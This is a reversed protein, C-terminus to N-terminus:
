LTEFLLTRYFLFSNADDSNSYPLVDIRWMGPALSTWAWQMSHVEVIDPTWDFFVADNHGGPTAYFIEGTHCTTPVGFLEHICLARVAISIDDNDADQAGPGGAPEEAFGATESSFTAMAGGHCRKVFTVSAAPTLNDTDAGAELIGDPTFLNNNTQFATGCGAGTGGGTAKITPGGRDSFASFASGAAFVIGAGATAAVAVLATAFLFKKRM